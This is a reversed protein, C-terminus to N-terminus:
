SIDFQKFIFAGDKKEIDYLAVSGLSSLRRYLESKSVSEASGHCSAAFTVGSTIAMSLADADGLTIEDTIILKVSLTRVAIEVGKSLPYNSLVAASNEGELAIEGRTDVVACPVYWPSSTVEYALERLASTKGGSPPACLVANKAFGGELLAAALPHSAKPYRRPIRLIITNVSTVASIKGNECVARGVVGARLGECTIYGECLCESHAYMSSATLARLVYSIDDNTIIINEYATLKGSFVSILPKGCGLRVEDAERGERRWFSALRPPLLKTLYKETNERANM